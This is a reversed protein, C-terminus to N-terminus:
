PKRFIMGYHFQGADINKEFAVGENNVLSQMVLDDTRLDEPPGFGGSGKKWDIVVLVGGSKLVRLAEIIINQKKESQFLINALLVMDQSGDSLSSGGLIELNARITEVNELGAAKSKAGVSELASEQIDLAYARGEKGVKQGILITFYGAGSGFDAVKMGEHLGFGAVIKEPNMFGGTGQHIGLGSIPMTNSSPM